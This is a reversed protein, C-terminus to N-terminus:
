PAASRQGPERRNLEVELNNQLSLVGFTQRAIHEARRKEVESFVTGALTVRLHDVIIHLRGPIRMHPMLVNGYIQRAIHARLRDDFSSVPLAEIQNQIERVGEVRSVLEVMKGAKYEDTVYGTLTVVGDDIRGDVYDFIGYFSNGTHGYIAEEIDAGARPGHPGPISVRRIQKGIQEAIARDSEAREIDLAASVVTTVDELERAEAIAKTKAWLSPVTGSLRVVSEQVSVTVNELADDKSLRNEIQRSIQLDSLPAAAAVSAVALVAVLGVLLGFARVHHSRM